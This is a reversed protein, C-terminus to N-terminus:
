RPDIPIVDERDEVVVRHLTTRETERGWDDIITVLVQVPHRSAGPQARPGVVRLDGVELEGGMGVLMRAGGHSSGATVFFLSTDAPPHGRYHLTGQEGRVALEVDLATGASTLLVVRDAEGLLHLADLGKARARAFEKVAIPKRGALVHRLFRRYDQAVIDIRDADGGARGLAVEYWVLALDPRGLLDALRALVWAHMRSFGPGPGAASLSRYALDTRGEHWAVFAAALLADADDPSSELRGAVGDRSLDVPSSDASTSPIEFRAADVKELAQVLREPLIVDPWAARIGKQLGAWGPLSEARAPGARDTLMAIVPQARMEARTDPAEIGFRQYDEETELM